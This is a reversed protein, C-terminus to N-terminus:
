WPLKTHITPITTNDYNNDDSEVEYAYDDIPETNITADDFILSYSNGKEKNTKNNVHHYPNVICHNDNIYVNRYCPISTVYNFFIGISTDLVNSHIITYVKFTVKASHDLEGTYTIQNSSTLQHLAEDLSLSVSGTLSSLSQLKNIELILQIQKYGTIKNELINHKSTYAKTLENLLNLRYSNNASRYNQKNFAIVNLGTNYTSVNFGNGNKYFIALFDCWSLEYPNLDLTLLPTHDLVCTNSMTALLQVADTYPQTSSDVIQSYTEISNDPTKSVDNLSM